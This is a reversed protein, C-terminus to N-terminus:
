IQLASEIHKKLGEDIYNLGESDGRQGYYAIRLYEGFIKRGCSVVRIDGDRIIHPIRFQAQFILENTTSTCWLSINYV